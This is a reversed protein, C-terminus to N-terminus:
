RSYAAVKTVRTIVLDALSQAAVAFVDRFRFIDARCQLTRLLFDILAHDRQHVYARVVPASGPWPVEAPNAWDRKTRTKKSLSCLTGVTGCFVYFRM